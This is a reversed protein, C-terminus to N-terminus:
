SNVLISFSYHNLPPENVQTCLDYLMQFYTCWAGECDDLVTDNLQKIDSHFSASKLTTM